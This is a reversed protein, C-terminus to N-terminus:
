GLELPRSISTWLSDFWLRTEEIFAADQGGRGDPGAAQRFLLAGLGMVDHIRMSEGRHFVTHPVVKYYGYLAESGNLLYVKHTPTLPVTRIDVRVEPVLERIQLAELSSRLAGAFTRTLERLRELPRPDDREEDAEMRPLALNADISPLLVRVTISRPSLEHNSVAIVSPALAINFTETTLSFVDITVHEAHFAAYLRDSLEVGESRPRGHSPPREAVAPPAGRGTGTLLGEHRLVDLAQRVATRNTGFEDALEHQTPLKDGPRLDGSLIRDRLAGAVRDRASSRTGNPAPSDLTM